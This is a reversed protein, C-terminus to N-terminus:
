KTSRYRKELEELHGEIKKIMETNNGAKAIALHQKNLFISRRIVRQERTEDQKGWRM